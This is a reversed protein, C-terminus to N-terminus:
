DLEIHGDINIYFLFSQCSLWDLKWLGQKLFVMVVEYIENPNEVQFNPPLELNTKLRSSKDANPTCFILTDLNEFSVGLHIYAHFINFYDILWVRNVEVM